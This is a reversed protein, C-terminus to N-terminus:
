VKGARRGLTLLGAILAAGGIGLAIMQWLALGDDGDTPLGGTSPVEVPAGAEGEVAVTVQSTMEGSATEIIISGPESGAVLVATAVGTEDTTETTELEGNLWYADDGPQSVITFLVDADGVAGGDNDLVTATVDTTGDPAVPAAEVTLSGVPPPYTQAAATALTVVLALVAALGITTNRM